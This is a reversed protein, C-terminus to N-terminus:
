ALDLEVRHVGRAVIGLVAYRSQEVNKLSVKVPQGNLRASQVSRNKPLLVELEFAQGSGTFELIVGDQASQRDYRYCCYGGSAPYRITVDASRVGAAEWRPALLSQSFAVGHDKVGALGEVLAYIVAASWGDPIGSSLDDYPAFFVPADSLTAALVMWKSNGIGAEFELSSIELEPHPNEFGAAYVGVEPLGHSAEHWAIRMTDNIRPGSRDYKSDHPEWWSGVNKGVEVYQSYTSGDSYRMALTGVTHEAGSAAHLLYLCAARANVPLTATRTYGPERALGLCARGGNAAPDIVEFPIGQFERTGTPMDKLDRGGGVWAPVGPTGAGFDASALSRMDLKQFSRPPIEVAKGRLTVPLYGRYRDAVAKQRRLIDAGYEEFGHEFAGQALEGAVISLVGGDVYEWVKGPENQTFDKQFPPYISYFEGPSSSPMERRIRQYTNIIAVCKEHSIGRNLSYSNALSVQQSMDVGVDPHYDPNEAIWHTYFQGNWALKDLREQLTDALTIFERAEQERGAHTLMEALRRCGAILCTNDGYFVGFESQGPHVVFVTGGVKQQDDAVFDWTDITFGRHVLQYKESWRYPDRTVYRVAKIAGDLKAKMWEHDGTGKWAYYLAELYFQEVHSEVPARRLQLFGGEIRRVFDGPTFKWDFYNAPPTAPYCNEWIMGNERQTAAFFDVADKLDPSFYKMGKMTLTHDFIWNVFLKYVRGQYRLVTIPSEQNWDMITWEVAALLDRFEGKEDKIETRCDVRFKTSGMVAGQADLAVINHIGLEGGIKFKFPDQAKERVYPFGAGDTVLLTATQVGRVTVEQLPRYSDLGIPELRLSAPSAAAQTSGALAGGAMAPIVKLMDRRDINM